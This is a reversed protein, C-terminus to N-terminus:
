VLKAVPQGWPNHSEATKYFRWGTEVSVNKTKQSTESQLRIFSCMQVLIYPTVKCILDTKMTLVASIEFRLNIHCM